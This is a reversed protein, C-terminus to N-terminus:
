KYLMIKSYMLIRRKKDLKIQGWDLNWEWETAKYSERYSGQFDAGWGVLNGMINNHLLSLREEDVDEQVKVIEHFHEFEGNTYSKIEKETIFVTKKQLYLNESKKIFFDKNKLIFDKILIESM